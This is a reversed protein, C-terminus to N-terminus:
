KSMQVRYQTPTKGTYKKFVANFVSKNSYGVEYLIELITKRPHSQRLLQKAENIRYTNIFGFFNQGFGRNIVESLSYPPISVMESLKQLTLQSDLYPKNHKIYTLLQTKYTKFLDSSLSYKKMKQALDTDVESFLQPHLVMHYLIIMIFILTSLVSVLYFVESFVGTYHFILHKIFGSYHIVLIGSLVIYFWNIQRSLISSQQRPLEQQYRYIVFIAAATYGIIQLNVVIIGIQQELLSFFAPSLILEQKIAAPYRYFRFIMMILFVLFPILHLIHEKKFKFDKRTITVIYMFLSPACLFAFPEGLFFIHPFTEYLTFKFGSLLWDWKSMALSLMFIAFLFHSKKPKFLVFIIAAFFYLIVALIIVNHSLHYIIADASRKEHIPIIIEVWPDSAPHPDAYRVMTHYARYVKLEKMQLELRGLAPEIESARIGAVSIVPYTIEVCVLPDQVTINEQVPYALQWKPPTSNERFIVYLPGQISSAIHQREVELDFAHRKYGIESYDAKFEMAVFQYPVPNFNVVPDQALLLGPVLSFLLVLIKTKINIM